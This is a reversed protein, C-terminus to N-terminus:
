QHITAFLLDSVCHCLPALIARRRRVCRNLPFTSRCEALSYSDPALNVIRLRRENRRNVVIFLNAGSIITQGESSLVAKAADAPHPRCIRGQGRFCTRIVM